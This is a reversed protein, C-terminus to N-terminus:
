RAGRTRIMVSYDSTFLRAESLSAITILAARMRTNEETLSRRANNAVWTQFEETTMTREGPLPEHGMKTFGMGCATCPLSVHACTM